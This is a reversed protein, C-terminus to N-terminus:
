QRSFIFIRMTTSVAIPGPKDNKHVREWLGPLRLADRAPLGHAGLETDTGPGM